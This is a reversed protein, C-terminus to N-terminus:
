DQWSWGERESPPIPAEQTEFESPVGIVKSFEDTDPEGPARAHPPLNPTPIVSKYVGTRQGHQEGRTDIVQDYVGTQKGRDRVDSGSDLVQDFELTRNGVADGRPDIVDEYNLTQQKWSRGDTRGLDSELWPDAGGSPVQFSQSGQSARLHAPIPGAVPVANDLRVYNGQDIAGRKLLYETFSGAGGRGVHGQYDQYLGILPERQAIGLRAAERAVASAHEVARRPDM